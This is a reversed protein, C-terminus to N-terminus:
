ARKQERKVPREGAKRLSDRLAATLERRLATFPLAAAAPKCQVAIWRGAFEAQMQDLIAKCRRRLRNREVAKGAKKTILIGAKTGAGAERPLYTFVALNANSACRGRRL